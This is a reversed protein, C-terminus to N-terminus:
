RRLYETRLSPAQQLAAVHEQVETLLQGKPGKIGLQKAGLAGTLFAGVQEQSLPVREKISREGTWAERHTKREVFVQQEGDDPRRPGYRNNHFPSLHNPLQHHLRQFGAAVVEGGGGGGGVMLM